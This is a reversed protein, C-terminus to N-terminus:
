WGLWFIEATCLAMGRSGGADCRSLNDRLEKLEKSAQIWCLATSDDDWSSSNYLIRNIRQMSVGWTFTFKNWNESMKRDGYVEESKWLNSCRKRNCQCFNKWSRGIAPGDLQSFQWVLSSDNYFSGVDAVDWITEYCGYINWPGLSKEDESSMLVCGAGFRSGWSFDKVQLAHEEM